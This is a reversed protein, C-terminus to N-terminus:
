PNSQAGEHSPLCQVLSQSDALELFSKSDTVDASLALNSQKADAIEFLRKAVPHLDGRARERYSEASLSAMKEIHNHSRQGFSTVEYFLRWPDDPTLQDEAFLKPNPLYSVESPWRLM